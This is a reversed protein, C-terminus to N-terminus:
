GRGERLARTILLAQRTEAVDHVRLADAGMEAAFLAVGLSGGLRASPASRDVGAREELDAILSKRSAGVYVSYGSRKLAPLNRLCEVSQASTKAFGVGIDLYIKNQIGAARAREAARLLGGFVEELLAEGRLAPDIREGRGRNHMLVLEAERAAILELLPAPPELGIFNVIEAGRDLAGRAVELKTTDISIKAGRAAAAEVAPLVRALEVDPAVPEFGAGYSRGPPRTSEGGIDIIEAGEALLEDVRGRASDADLHRGGDSFSDPTTNLVGWIKPLARM